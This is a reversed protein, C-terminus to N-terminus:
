ETLDILNKKVTPAEKNAAERIWAYDAGRNIKRELDFEVIPEFPKQGREIFAYTDGSRTVLEYDPYLDENLDPRIMLVPKQSYSGLGIGGLFAGVVLAGTIARRKFDKTNM